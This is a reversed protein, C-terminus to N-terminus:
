APNRKLELEIRVFFTRGTTMPVSGSGTDHVGSSLTANLNRVDFLDKCGASLALRKALLQKTLTADALHFAAITGRQVSGDLGVSYGPQEGQYKWFLSASWGQRMWHRTISGRLEPTRQWEGLSGGELDDARLTIAAGMSVLWHGNDWGAGLSAGTTRLRGINAYTFSAGSRQALTILDRVANHFANFESTYVVRDRAHRYVLGASASRSREAKLEPNGTIDHNVDVFYLHLEKLSPARFGEAYSARATIRDSIRWRANLSPILPARYLTNYALRAGPRITFAEVPRWEASAFAAYDGIQQAGDIRDGSGTELNFDIGVEYHLKASDGASSYTARVNTLSFRTTDQAGEAQSLEEGLTTLDRLWTNRMRMYRNHAALANLRRGDGLRGEAFLANDLRTTIYKADFATENYPARPRGRDLILDHLAEGKWGLDWRDRSWRYSARAFFQERPKWQQFRCTDAVEARLSPLAKQRPDWGLFLNRGGTLVVESRGWRRTVGFTTNLRGIHEVYASARATAAAHGGRRTILNITGALANTGYNVSLPGEVLEIREIGTLDIQSLDVNGNQRGTVPVGDILVKVNEGGLGQMSVSSGLVHDQALRLNLQDRLADGLNQAAMRQIRQSDIVRLRQVAGEASGPAYQGTVVFERLQAPDRRLRCTVPGMARITDAWTTFGIFSVTLAVGRAAQEATLPLECRGDPGSVALKPMAEQLARFQVHAYPVPTSGDGELVQLTLQAAASSGLLLALLAGPFRRDGRM